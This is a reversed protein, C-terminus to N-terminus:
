LSDFMISFAYKRATARRLPGLIADRAETRRQRELWALLKVAEASSYISRATSPRPARAVLRQMAAVVNPARVGYSKIATTSCRYWSEFAPDASADPQWPEAAYRANKDSLEFLTATLIPNAAREAALQRHYGDEILQDLARSARAVEKGASPKRKTNAKRRMSPKDYSSNKECSM